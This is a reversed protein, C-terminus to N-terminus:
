RASDARRSSGTSASGRRVASEQTSGDTRLYPPVLSFTSRMAEADRILVFGAEVPVFMWKHPDLSVSDARAIAGLRDAYDAALIAPGGYAADVHMWVGHRACVDAIANLDDIAGTNTTGATAVVAVPQVHRACDDDLAAELAPVRM